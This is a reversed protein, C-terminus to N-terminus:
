YGYRKPDNLIPDVTSAPNPVAIEVLLGLMAERNRAKAAIDFAELLGAEILRENVTMASDDRHERMAVPYGTLRHEYRTPIPRAISRSHSRPPDSATM